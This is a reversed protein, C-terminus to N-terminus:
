HKRNHPRRQRIGWVHRPPVEEGVGDTLEEEQRENEEQLFLEDLREEWEQQLEPDIELPAPHELEECEEDDYQDLEDDFGIDDDEDNISYYITRYGSSPDAEEICKGCNDCIKCPDLDCHLCEGCDNCIKEPFLICHKM